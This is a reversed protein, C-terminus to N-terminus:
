MHALVAYPDVRKEARRRERRPNTPKLHQQAVYAMWYVSDLCDDNGTRSSTGDWGVWEDEFAKLFEAGDESEIEDSIWLRGDVFMPALGGEAQYRQGKSKIPEGLYPCQVVPLTTNYVLMDKFTEGKGWKEVGIRHLFPYKNAFNQLETMSTASPVKARIGDIVVVGGGPIAKGVCLAFYDIKGQKLKDQTSAFDVGFYVSWTEGIKDAPFHHLWERRLVTGRLSGLDCLYMVPFWVPNTREIALVTDIPFAEAWALKIGKGAHAIGTYILDSTEDLEFIPTKIHKFLGTRLLSHYGDDESWLTCAVALTPHGDPRTWTPIVNKELTDVINQMERKSRTNQEDHFDDAYWGNSPHKGIHIGSLIGSVLLSPEGLHDAITKEIWADYDVSTDKVYWGETSWRRVKDPVVTPFCKKWMYSNEIIAAMANGVEAAASDNIRVFVTSGKPNKGILYLVWWFLITSKTAGRFAEILVGTRNKWAEYLAPLWKEKAYPPLEHHTGCWYFHEFGQISVGLSNAIVAHADILVREQETPSIIDDLNEVVKTSSQEM